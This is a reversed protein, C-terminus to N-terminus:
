INLSYYYVFISNVGHVLLAILSDVRQSCREFSGVGEIFRVERNEPSSTPAPSPSIPRFPSEFTNIVQSYFRRMRHISEPANRYGAGNHAPFRFASLNPPSSRPFCLRTRVWVSSVIIRASTRSNHALRASRRLGKSADCVGITADRYNNCQIRNLTCHPDM